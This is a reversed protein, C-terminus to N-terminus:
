IAVYKYSDLKLLISVMTIFSVLSTGGSSLFPLPIGIVPLMGMTMGINILFHTLFIGVLCYAYHRVFSVRQREAIMIIRIIFFVYLCIVFFVGLFGHEEGVTCFIFDSTQEPIYNLRTMAGELFGKGTIGGSGIAMKSNILNYAPGRPDCKDLHLWMNIRVQQHPKLNSKLFDTAFIITTIVILSISIIFVLKFRGRRTHIIILSLLIILNALIPELVKGNLFAWFSYIEIILLSIFYINKQRKIYSIFIANSLSLFIIALLNPNYMLSLILITIVGLVIIYFNIFFGERFLAIFFSMFVLSSGDDPQLILLTVPLFIVALIALISKKDRLNTNSNALVSSLALSTGIKALEVPQFSFGGFTFWARAGNIKSGVILVLILALIGIGYIVYAFINWFKSNMVMIIFFILVSLLLFITQKGVQSKFLFEKMDSSYGGKYGVSFVMSWGIIVLLLMTILLPWDIGSTLPKNQQLSM